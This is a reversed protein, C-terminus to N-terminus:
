VTARTGLLVRNDSKACYDGLRAEALGRDSVVYGRKVLLSAVLDTPAGLLGHTEVLLIRPQSTLERLIEVEAGECDLQLVNCSPLKSPSMAAGVDSGDGYVFISKAVVAHHVSVNTVKNRAATQRAYNVYQKSGEFCEVKGLPGARLAAVVATVGLGAGVIVVSDGSGVTENLGAVLTAEFDPEDGRPVPAWTIPVLRDGWKRDHCIPIGAYHVPKGPLWPRVGRRYAYAIGRGALGSVGEVRVIDRVKYFM